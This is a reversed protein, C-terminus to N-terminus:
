QVKKKVVLSHGFLYMTRVQMSVIMESDQSKFKLKKKKKKRKM